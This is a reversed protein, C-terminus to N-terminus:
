NVVVIVKYLTYVIITFLIIVVFVYAFIRLYMQENQEREYDILARDYDITDTLNLYIDIVTNTNLTLEFTKLEINTSNAACLFWLEGSTVNVINNLGDCHIYYGTNTDNNTITVEVNNQPNGLSNYLNLTLTIQIQAIFSNYENFHRLSLNLVEIDNIYGTVNYKVCDYEIVTNYSM